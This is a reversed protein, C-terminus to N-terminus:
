FVLGLSAIWIVGFLKVSGLPGVRCRARSSGKLGFKVDDKKMAVDVQEQLKPDLPISDSQVVYHFDVSNKKGVDFPDALLKAIEHGEFSVSFHTDSFTAHAKQNGNKLNLIITMQTELLGALDYQFLDLHANIVSIVPVRPHIVQYGTFIVIGVVIVAIAIITCIIAACWGLPHTTHRRTHSTLYSPQMPATLPPTASFIDVHLLHSLPKPFPRLKM